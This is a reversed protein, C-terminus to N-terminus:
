KDGREILSFARSLEGILPGAVGLILGITHGTFDKHILFVVLMIYLAYVMVRCLVSVLIWGRGDM